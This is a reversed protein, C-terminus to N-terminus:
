EKGWDLEVAVEELRTREEPRICNLEAVTIATDALRRMKAAHDTRKSKEPEVQVMEYEKKKSCWRFLHLFLYDTDCVLRHRWKGRSGLDLLPPPKLPLEREMELLQPLKQPREREMVQLNRPPRM